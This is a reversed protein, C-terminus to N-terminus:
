ADGAEVAAARDDGDHKFQQVLRSLRGALEDIEAARRTVELISKSQEEVARSVDETSTANRRAVASINQVAKVSEEAGAIQERALRSIIQVRDSGGTVTAVINRLTDLIAGLQQRGQALRSSTAEVASVAERSAATIEEVIKGIRDASRSTNEALQRIEEAVVAFGRGAEGARAAEITANIALLHTQQAVETIVRVINGIEQTREGFEVVLGSYQEVGQFVQRMEEVAAGALQSGSQAVQSAERSSRAADEASVSARQISRAMDSILTSSQDVLEKQLEAGRAIAEMFHSINGASANIHRALENLSVSSARVQGSTGQVERLLTTFNGHITELAAELNALEDGGGDHEGGALEQARAQLRRLRRQLRRQGALLLLLGLGAALSVALPRVWSPERPVLWAALVPLLLAALSAGAWRQRPGWTM